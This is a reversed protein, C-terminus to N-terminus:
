PEVIAEAGNAVAKPQGNGNNNAIAPQGILQFAEGSVPDIPAANNQKLNKAAVVLPNEHKFVVCKYQNLTRGDVQYPTTTFSAVSGDFLDGVLIGDFEVDGKITTKSGDALTVDHTPWLNRTGEVNTKVKRDGLYKVGKFTVKKFEVGVKDSKLTEIKQVELLQEMQYVILNGQELATISLQLTLM